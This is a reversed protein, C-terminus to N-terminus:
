TVLLTKIIEEQDIKLHVSYRGGPVKVPIRIFNSTKLENSAVRMIPENESYIIIAAHEVIRELHIFFAGDHYNVIGAIQRHNM